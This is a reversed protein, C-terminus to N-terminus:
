RVEIEGIRYASEEHPADMALEVVPSTHDKNWLGAEIAYHGPLVGTLDIDFKEMTDGPLWATTDLDTEFEYSVNEGKLRVSFPIFNYLPAAGRNELWMNFAATDGSDVLTPFDVLRIAYRYGMHELWYEISSQWEPPCSCSKANFTSIHWKLSQEITYDIDFGQDKWGAVTGCSEFAVPAKKWVDAIEYIHRPYAKLMHYNMNGLCDCRFGTPHTLNAYRVLEYCSSQGILPTHRFTETYADVIPRVLEDSFFGTDHGEGWSGTYAIDVAMIQPNGDYREGFKRSVDAFRRFFEPHTPSEKVRETAPREPHPIRAALWDPIDQDPRTTHPMLRLMVHQGAAKARELAEDILSFDYVGDEPEIDKWCVRIYAIRTAPHYGKGYGSEYAKPHLPYYEKKWGLLGDSFLPDGEFHQFTTFGTYPINLLGKIPNFTVTSDPERRM